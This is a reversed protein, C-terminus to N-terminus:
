SVSWKSTLFVVLSCFNWLTFNLNKTCILQCQDSNQLSSKFFAVSSLNFIDHVQKKGCFLKVSSNRTDNLTKLVSESTENQLKPISFNQTLCLIDQYLIHRFAQIELDSTVNQPISNNCNITKNFSDDLDLLTRFRESSRLQDTINFSTVLITGSVAFFVFVTSLRVFM